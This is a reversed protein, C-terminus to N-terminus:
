VVEFEELFSDLIENHEEVVPFQLPKLTLEGDTKDLIEDIYWGFDQTLFGAEALSLLAHEDSRRAPDAQVSVTPEQMQWIHYPTFVTNRLGEATVSTDSHIARLYWPDGTSSSRANVSYADM